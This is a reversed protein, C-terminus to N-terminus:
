GFRVITIIDLEFVEAISSRVEGLSSVYLLGALASIFGSAIFLTMKVRRVQVGSMRAADKNNGIVYAVRGFASYHLIIVAIIFLGFFVLLALPFPGLLPQTGLANYWAPIGTFCRDELLIRAIGRYAILGALTVVLAPMEVYAVFLGNIVGCVVGVLLGFMLAVPFAM